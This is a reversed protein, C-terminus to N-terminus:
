SAVLGQRCWRRHEDYMGCAHCPVGDRPETLEYVAHRDADDEWRWTLDGSRSPGGLVSITLSGSCPRREPDPSLHHGTPRECLYAHNDPCRTQCLDRRGGDGRLVAPCSPRHQDVGDCEVCPAPYAGRGPASSAGTAVPAPDPHSPTM